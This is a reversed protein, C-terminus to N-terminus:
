KRNDCYRIKCLIGVNNSRARHNGIRCMCTVDLHEELSPSVEAKGHCAMCMNGTTWLHSFAGLLQGSVQVLQTVAWHGDRIYRERAIFITCTHVCGIHITGSRLRQNCLQVSIHIIAPQWLETPSLRTRHFLWSVWPQQRGDNHQTYRDANCNDDSDENDAVAHSDTQRDTQRDTNDPTTVWVHHAMLELMENQNEPATHKNASKDLWQLVCPKDEARFHLLQILNASVDVAM